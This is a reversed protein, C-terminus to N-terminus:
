IQRYNRIKDDTPIDAMVTVFGIVKRLLSNFAIEYIQLKRIVCALLAELL